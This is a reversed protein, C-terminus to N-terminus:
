LNMDPQIKGSTYIIWLGFHEVIVCSRVFMSLRFWFMNWLCCGACVCKFMRDWFGLILKEILIVHCIWSRALLYAFGIIRYATCSYQKITNKAKYKTM